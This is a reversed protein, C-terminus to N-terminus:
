GPIVFRTPSTTATSGYPKCVMAFLIWSWRWGRCPPRWLQQMRLTLGQDLVWWTVARYMAGTDLYLLGMREAFARTVTSKGAGAPGDIAVIPSRTMLVTHDILRTSGCRAAVALLRCTQDAAAPQLTSPNVVEVYDVEFGASTLATTLAATNLERSGSQVAAAEQQLLRPLVAAQHRQDPTLYRNRSSSALGDLERVTSM